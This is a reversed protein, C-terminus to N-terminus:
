KTTYGKRNGNNDFYNTVGQNSETKYGVRNGQADYVANPSNINYQSNDFNYPSNKFNYPSNEFNYPSNQFNYISDNFPVQARSVGATLALVSVTVSVIKKM